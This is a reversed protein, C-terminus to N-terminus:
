REKKANKRQIFNPRTYKRVGDKYMDRYDEYEKFGRELDAIKDMIGDDDMNEVVEAFKDTDIGILITKLKTVQIMRDEYFKEYHKLLIEANDFAREREEPLEAILNLEQKILIDVSRDFTISNESIYRMCEDFILPNYNM